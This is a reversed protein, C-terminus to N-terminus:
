RIYRVLNAITVATAAAQTVAEVPIGAALATVEAALATAAVASVIVEASDTAAAESAQPPVITGTVASCIFVAPIDPSAM